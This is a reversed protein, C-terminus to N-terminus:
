TSLAVRLGILAVFCAPATARIIAASSKFAALRIEKLPFGSTPTLEEAHETLGFIMRIECTWREKQLVQCICQVFDGM